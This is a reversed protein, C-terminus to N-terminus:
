FVGRKDRVACSLRGPPLVIHIDGREAAALDPLRQASTLFREGEDREIVDETLTRFKRICDPRCFPHADAVAIEDVLKGGDAFEFEVRGGFARERPDTAHYRRTWEPDEVTRNKQWLAVVERHEVVEPAYSRVHFWFGTNLAAAFIFM